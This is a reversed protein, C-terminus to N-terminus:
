LVHKGLCGWGVGDVVLMTLPIKAKIYGCANLAHIRENGCVRMEKSQLNNQCSRRVTDNYESTSSILISGLTKPRTHKICDYVFVFVFSCLLININCINICQVNWKKNGSICDIAQYCAHPCNFFFLILSYLEKWSKLMQFYVRVCM